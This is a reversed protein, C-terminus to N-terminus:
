EDDDDDSALTMDACPRSVRRMCGLIDVCVYHKGLVHVCCGNALQALGEAEHTILSHLVNIAKRESAENLLLISMNSTPYIILHRCPHPKVFIDKTRKRKIAEIVDEAWPGEPNATAGRGGCAGLLRAQGGDEIKTMEHQDAQNSARTIEIRAAFEKGNADPVVFDPLPPCAKRVTIPLVLPGNPITAKLFERLVHWEEEENTRGKRPGVTGISGFAVDFQEISPITVEVQENVHDIGRTHRSRTYPEGSAISSM